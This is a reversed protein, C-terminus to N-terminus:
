LPRTRARPAKATSHSPTGRGFAVVGGFNKKNLVFGELGSSEPRRCAASARQVKNKHVFVDSSSTSGQSEQYWHSGVFIVLDTYRLLSAWAPDPQDLWIASSQVGNQPQAPLRYQKFAAADSSYKMFYPPPSRTCGRRSSPTMKGSVPPGRHGSWAKVELASTM